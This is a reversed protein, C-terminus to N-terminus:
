EEMFEFAPLLAELISPKVSEIQIKRKALDIEVEDLAKRDALYADALEGSVSFKGNESIQTKGDEDKEAYKEIIAKEKELYFQIHPELEHKATVLAHASAFPMDTDKIEHIANFVDIAEILTM